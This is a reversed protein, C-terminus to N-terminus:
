IGGDRSEFDNEGLSLRNAVLHSLSAGALADRLTQSLTSVM